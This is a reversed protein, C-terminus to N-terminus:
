PTTDKLLTPDNERIRMIAITAVHDHASEIAALVRQVATEEAQLIATAIIREAMKWDHEGWQSGSLFIDQVIKEAKHEPSLTM